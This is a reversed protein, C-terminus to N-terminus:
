GFPWCDFRFAIRNAVIRDLRIDLRVEDFAMLEALYECSCRVTVLALGNALDTIVSPAKERLFMERCRGQWELHNVFYVNGVLNTDSFGVIHRYSYSPRPDAQGVPAPLSKRGRLAPQVVAAPPQRVAVTIVFPGRAPCDFAQVRSA